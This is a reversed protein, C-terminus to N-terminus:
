EGTSHCQRCLSRLGNGNPNLAAPITGQETVGGAAMRDMFILGFPNQNGHGKHCSLCGPTADSFNAQNAYVRIKNTAGTLRTQMSATLTEQSTPHRIFNTTTGNYLDADTPGGHFSGHCAACINDITNSTAKTALTMPLNNFQVTDNSYYGSFPGGALPTYSPLNIWVDKTIDRTNSIAYTPQFLQRGSTLTGTPIGTNRSVALNRYSNRRTAAGSNHVGHCAICELGNTSLSGFNTEYWNATTTGAAAMFAANYGPPDIKSYLTHGKYHEYPAATANAAGISNLAGASRNGLANADAGLVDPAFLAGDHCALCLANVDELKLLRDNPGTAGLWNGDATPVGPPVIAVSGGDWGHNMSFHPTHCDYCVLNDGRHYEGAFAPGAVLALAVIFLTVTKRV